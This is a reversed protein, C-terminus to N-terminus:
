TMLSLAAIMGGRNQSLPGGCGLMGVAWLDLKGVIQEEGAGEQLRGSTIKWRAHWSACVAGRVLCHPALM